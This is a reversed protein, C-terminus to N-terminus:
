EFARQLYTFSGGDISDFLRTIERRGREILPAGTADNTKVLSKPKPNLDMARGRQMLALRREDSMEIAKM